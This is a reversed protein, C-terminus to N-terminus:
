APRDVALECDALDYRPAGGRGHAFPSDIRGGRVDRAWIASFPPDAEGPRRRYPLPEDHEGRIGRWPIPRAPDPWRVQLNLVQLNDVGEAVLAARACRAADSHNACQDSNVAVGTVAPDDLGAYTLTVDRLVVDEIRMGDAATLLIRGDTRAVINSFQVNRVLGPPHGAPLDIYRESRKCDIQLVRDLWYGSDTDIVLNSVVVNEILGHNFLYLSVARTSGHIVCNTVALEGVARGDVVYAKVPVCNTRMVCDSVTVRRCDRELSPWCVVADDGTDISCQSIMVDTCGQVDFGDINPGFLAGDIRVGRIWVRDCDYLHCNWAPANRLTIDQLRVDRCRRIQLMTEIRPKKWGIWRRPPGAPQWFMPGNGDIAGGGCLTIDHCDEAILLHRWYDPDPAHHPGFMPWPQPPHAELTGIATLVAGPELEVRLHSCLRITGSRWTGPPLVVTGGGAARVREIAAQIAATDDAGQGRAGTATIDIRM